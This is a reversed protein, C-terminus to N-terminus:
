DSDSCSSSYCKKNGRYKRSRKYGYDSDSDSSSYYKKNYKKKKSYKCSREYDSSSDTDSCSCYKENKHHPFFKLMREDTPWSISGYDKKGCTTSNLIAELKSSIDRPSCNFIKVLEDQLHYTATPTWAHTDKYSYGKKVILTNYTTSVKEKVQYFLNIAYDEKLHEPKPICLNQIIVGSLVDVYDFTNYQEILEAIDKVLFTKLFKIRNDSLIKFIDSTSM